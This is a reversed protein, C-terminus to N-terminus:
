PFLARFGSGLNFGMTPQSKWLPLISKPGKNEGGWKHIAKIILGLYAFKGAASSCNMWLPQLKAWRFEPKIWAGSERVHLYKPVNSVHIKAKPHSSKAASVFLKWCIGDTFIVLPEFGRWLLFEAGLSQIICFYFLSYNFYKGWLGSQFDQKLGPM